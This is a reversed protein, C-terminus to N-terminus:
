RELSRVEKRGKESERDAKNGEIERGRQTTLLKGREGFCQGLAIFGCPVRHLM